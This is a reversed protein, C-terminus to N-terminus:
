HTLDSQILLTITLSAGIKTESFRLQHSTDMKVPSSPLTLHFTSAPRLPTPSYRCSLHSCPVAKFFSAILVYKLKILYEINNIKM